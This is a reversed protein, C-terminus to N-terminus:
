ALGAEAEGGLPWAPAAVLGAGAAAVAAVAEGAAAAAGPPPQLSAAVHNVPAPRPGAVLEPAARDLADAVARLRAALRCLPPSPLPSAPLARVTVDRDAAFDDLLQRAAPHPPPPTPSLTPTTPHPCKAASALGGM